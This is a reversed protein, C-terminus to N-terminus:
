QRSGQLESARICSTETAGVRVLATGASACADTAHECRARFACGSPPSIMNPPAGIIPKLRERNASPLSSLLGRTYPHNPAAFIDNVLGREATNGAYMVEVRDAIRAVVGLDHTIFVV